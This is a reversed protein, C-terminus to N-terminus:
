ATTLVEGLDYAPDRDVQDLHCSQPDREPRWRLFTVTRRLRHGAMQDFPVEVVRAQRGLVTEADELVIGVPRQPPDDLLLRTAERCNRELGPLGKAAARPLTCPLPSAEEPLTQPRNLERSSSSLLM